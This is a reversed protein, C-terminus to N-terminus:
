TAPRSKRMPPLVQLMLIVACRDQHWKGKWARKKEGMLINVTHNKDYACKADNGQTSAHSADIEFKGAVWAVHEAERIVYAVTVAPGHEAGPATQTQCKNSTEEASQWRRNLRWRATSGVGFGAHLIAHHALSDFPSSSHFFVLRLWLACGSSKLPLQVSCEVHLHPCGTHPGTSYFLQVSIYFRKDQHSWFVRSPATRTRNWHANEQNSSLFFFGLMECSVFGDFNFICRM